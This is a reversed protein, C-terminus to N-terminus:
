GAVLERVTALVEDPRDLHVSHTAGPWSVLRAGFATALREHARRVAHDPKRDATVVVAPFRPLDSERLALATLGHVARALTPIDLDATRELAAACDPRLDRGRATRLAAARLAKALVVRLGPVASLRGLVTTMRELSACARADNVPTPDLLVLGAVLDPRHRALLVGVAGGLSQGVVVVPGLGLREVLSALHAAAGALSGDVTSTGTGPRDHVVVRAGPEAVLGEVLGPFFGDCAEAGGPLLLVPPGSEGHVQVGDIEM